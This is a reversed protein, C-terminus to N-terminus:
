HVVPITLSAATDSGQDLVLIKIKQVADGIAHEQAAPIGDKMAADLQERTLHINL